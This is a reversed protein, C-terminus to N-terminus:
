RHAGRLSTTTSSDWVDSQNEFRDARGDGDRDTIRTLETQQMAYFAGDRYGLGLVEDLGQAFVQIRPDPIEAFVGDLVLIEGRRTGVALRDDPLICMSGAELALEPPVPVDVVRYYAEEARRTGWTGGLEQAASVPPLALLAAACRVTVRYSQARTM